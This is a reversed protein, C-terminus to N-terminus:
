RDYKNYYSSDPKYLQAIENLFYQNLGMADELRKGRTEYDYNMKQFIKEVFISNKVSKFEKYIEDFDIQNNTIEKVTEKWASYNLDADFFLTGNYDCLIAKNNKM